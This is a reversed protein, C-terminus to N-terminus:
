KQSTKAGSKLPTYTVSSYLAIGNNGNLTNMNYLAIGNNGNLTNMNYLSKGNNGNLTNMNYLAIGNNGNLTNMNYLAIGNNGNLTNMLALYSGDQYIPQKHSHYRLYEHSDNGKWQLNPPNNTKNTLTASLARGCQKHQGSEM